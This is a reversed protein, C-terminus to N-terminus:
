STTIAALLNVRTARWAPYVAALVGIIFAMFLISITSGIPVSFSSLGQDRLAYVIVWGLGVGVAITNWVTMFIIITVSEGVEGFEPDVVGLWPIWIRIVVLQAIAPFDGVPKVRENVVADGIGVAVTQGVDLFL